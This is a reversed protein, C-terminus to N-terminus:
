RRITRVPQGPTRIKYDIWEATLQAAEDPGAFLGELAKAAGIYGKGAAKATPNALPNEDIAGADTFAHKFHNMSGLSLVPLWEHQALVTTKLRPIPDKEQL